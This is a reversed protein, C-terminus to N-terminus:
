FVAGFKYINEFHLHFSNLLRLAYGSCVVLFESTHYM